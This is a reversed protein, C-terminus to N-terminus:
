ESLYEEFISDCEEEDSFRGDDDNISPEPISLEPLKKKCKLKKPMGTEKKLDKKTPKKSRPSEPSLLKRADEAEKDGVLLNLTTLAEVVEKHIKGTMKYGTKKKNGSFAIKSFSFIILAFISFVIFKNKM